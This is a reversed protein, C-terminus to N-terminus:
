RPTGQGGTRWSALWWPARAGPLSQLNRRRPRTTNAASPSALSRKPTILTAVFKSFSPARRTTGRLRCSDQVTWAPRVARDGRSCSGSRYSPRYQGVIPLELRRPGMKRSEESRFYDKRYAPIRGRSCAQRLRGRGSPSQAWETPLARSDRESGSRPSERM